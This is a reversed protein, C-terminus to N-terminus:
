ANCPALCPGPLVKEAALASPFVILCAAVDAAFLNAKPM